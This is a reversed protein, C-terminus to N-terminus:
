PSTGAQGRLAFASIMMGAVFLPVGFGSYFLARQSVQGLFYDMLLLQLGLLLGIFIAHVPQGWHILLLIVALQPLAMVWCAVRGARQEGLQVPPSRVGMRRGAEVAKFDNLTM